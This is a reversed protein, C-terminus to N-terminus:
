VLRHDKLIHAPHGDHYGAVEFREKETIFSYGLNAVDAAWIKKVLNKMNEDHFYETYPKHGSDNHMTFGLKKFTALLHGTPDIRNLIETWDREFRELRGVFSVKGLGGQTMSPWQKSDVHAGCDKPKKGAALNKLFSAFTCYKAAIKKGEAASKKLTIKKLGYSWMSVARDWPNRSFTFSFYSPDISCGGRKVGEACDKGEEGQAACVLTKLNNVLASGANKPIHVFVFRYKESKYCGVTHDIQVKTKSQKGMKRFDFPPLIEMEEAPVQQLAGSATEYVGSAAVASGAVAHIAPESAQQPPVTAVVGPDAAVPAKQALTAPETASEIAATDAATEVATDAGRAVVQVTDAPLEQAQDPAATSAGVGPDAEVLVKHSLTAPESPLTSSVSSSSLPESRSGSTAIQQLSSSPLIRGINESQFAFHPASSFNVFLLFGIGLGALLGMLFTVSQKAM